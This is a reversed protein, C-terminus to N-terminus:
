LLDFGSPDLSRDPLVNTRVYETYQGDSMVFHARTLMTQGELHDIEHQLVTAFFGEFPADAHTAGGTDTYTVRIERPRSVLAVANDISMCKEPYTQQGDSVDTLVPDIMVFPAVHPRGRDREVPWCAVVCFRAGHGLQNGALGYALTRARLAEAKAIDKLLSDRSFMWSERPAEPAAVGAQLRALLPGFMTGFSGLSSGQAARSALSEAVPASRRRLIAGRPENLRVIFARGEEMTLAGIADPPLDALTFM